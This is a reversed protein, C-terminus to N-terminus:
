TRLNCSLAAAVPVFVLLPAWAALTPSLVGLGGLSQCALGVLTFATAVGVCIGITLFVNRNRRSMMLPVGLMLLTGDALPQAIRSHVAVRVEPGLDTTPHNLQAILESVSAHNRWSSGGALMAFPMQSVVFVQDKELWRADRPTVVVPADGLRLSEKSALDQPTRVGSLLFGAPHDADGDLGIAETAAIQKGYRSLEPPLVFAPKVIKREALIIKEGGVLIDSQSDYRPELDRAAAGGLDKPDRAVEDRCRPIVLERDAIGLLSVAASALLLPKIIRTKSVGAAMIATLEQYRQLWTVTFMAAIMALIGSTRDFFSLSHYAYYRAIVAVLSGEKAGQASFQDLHGFADIVVYLGMLSLFCILFIQLFQRLLYRDLIFM